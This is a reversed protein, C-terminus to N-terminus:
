KKETTLSWLKMTFHNNINDKLLWKLDNNAFSFWVTALLRYESPNRNAAEQPLLNNYTILTIAGLPKHNLHNSPMFFLKTIQEGWHIIKPKRSVNKRNILQNVEPLHFPSSHMFSCWLGDWDTSPLRPKREACPLIGEKQLKARYHLAEKFYQMQCLHDSVESNLLSVWCM